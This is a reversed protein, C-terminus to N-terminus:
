QWPSLTAWEMTELSRCARPLMVLILTDSPNVPSFGVVFRARALLWRSLVVAESRKARVSGLYIYRTAENALGLDSVREDEQGGIPLLMAHIPLECSMTHGVLVDTTMPQEPQIGLRALGAAVSAMPNSDANSRWSACTQIALTSAILAVFGSRLLAKM